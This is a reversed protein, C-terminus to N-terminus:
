VSPVYWVCRRFRFLRRWAGNLRVPGLRVRINSMEVPHVGPGGHFAGGRSSASGGSHEKVLFVPFMRLPRSVVAASRWCRLKLWLGGVSVAAKVPARVAPAPGVVRRARVGLGNPEVVARSGASRAAFVKSRTVAGHGRLV